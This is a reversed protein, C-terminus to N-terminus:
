DIDVLTIMVDKFGNLRWLLLGNLQLSGNFNSLKEINQQYIRLRLQTM